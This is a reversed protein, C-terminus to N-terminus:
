LGRESNIRGAGHRTGEPFRVSYFLPDLSPGIEAILLEDRGHRCRDWECCRGSGTKIRLAVCHGKPFTFSRGCSEEPFFGAVVKAGGLMGATRVRLTHSWVM